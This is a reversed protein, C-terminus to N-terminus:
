RKCKTEGDDPGARKRPDFRLQGWGEAYLGVRQLFDKSKRFEGFALHFALDRRIDFYKRGCIIDSMVKDCQKCVCPAHCISPEGDLRDESAILLPDDCLFVAMDTNFYNRRFVTTEGCIMCLTGVHYAFAGVIGVAEFLLPCHGGEHAKRVFPDILAQLEEETEGFFDTTGEVRDLLVNITMEPVHAFQGASMVASFIEERTYPTGGSLTPM